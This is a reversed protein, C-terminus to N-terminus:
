MSRSLRYVFLFSVNLEDSFVNKLLEPDRCVRGGKIVTIGEVKPKGDWHNFLHSKLQQISSTSPLDLHHTSPSPHVPHTALKLTLRLTDPLEASSAPPPTSSSM